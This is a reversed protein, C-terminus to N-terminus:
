YTKIFFNQFRKIHQNQALDYKKLVLFDFIRFNKLFIISEIKQQIKREFGLIIDFIVLNPVRAAFLYTKLPFKKKSFNAGLTHRPGFNRGRKGFFHCFNLIFWIIPIM